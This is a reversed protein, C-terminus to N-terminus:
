RHLTSALVNFPELYFNGLYSKMVQFPERAFTDSESPTLVYGVMASDNADSYFLLGDGMPVIHEWGPQLLSYQWRGDTPTRDTYIGTVPDIDGTTYLGNASCYFLVGRRNAISPEVAGASIIHTWGPGFAYTPGVQVLNIESITGLTVLTPKLEGIVTVGTNTNYFMLRGQLSAVHTWGKGLSGAPYSKWVRYGNPTIEGIEAAGDRRDYFFLYGNSYAVHTWYTLPKRVGPPFSRKRTFTL